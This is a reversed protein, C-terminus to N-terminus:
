KKTKVLRKEGTPSYHIVYVLGRRDKLIEIQEILIELLALNKRRVLSFNKMKVCAVVFLPLVWWFSYNKLVDGVFQFRNLM